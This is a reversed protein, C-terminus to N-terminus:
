RDSDANGRARFTAYALAAALLVLLLALSAVGPGADTRAELVRPRAVHPRSAVHAAPDVSLKPHPATAHRSGAVRVITLSARWWESPQASTRSPSSAADSTVVAARTAARPSPLAGVMVLASRGVVSPFSLREPLVPTTSPPPSSPPPDAPGPPSGAGSAAPAPENTGPESVPAPDPPSPDPAPASILVVTNQTSAQQVQTSGYCWVLCGIQVQWIVQTVTAELGGGSGTPQGTVSEITTSSEDADQTQTSGVCDLLCGIQLQWTSQVTQSVAQVNPDSGGLSSELLSPIAEGVLQVTTSSQSASQVQALSSPQGAQEQCSTQNTVTQETGPVPTASPPDPAELLSDLEALLQQATALTTPNSSSDDFCRAVCGIQIQTITGASQLAVGPGTPVSVGALQAGIQLIQLSVAQQQATQVQSV